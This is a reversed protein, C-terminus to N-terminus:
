APLGGMELEESVDIFEIQGMEDKLLDMDIKIYKEMEEYTNYYYISFYEKNETLMNKEVTYADGYFIKTKCGDSLMGKAFKRM